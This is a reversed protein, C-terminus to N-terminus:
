CPCMADIKQGPSFPDDMTIYLGRVSSIARQIAAALQQNKIFLDGNRDFDLDQTCWTKKSTGGKGGGGTGKMGGKPM